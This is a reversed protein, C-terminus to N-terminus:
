PEDEPFWSQVIWREVDQYPTVFKFPPFDRVNKRLVIADDVEWLPIYAIEAYLHAHLTQLRSVASKWDPARDLDLLEIRLWDPVSRMSEMRAGSSVTLFPWIEMLPEEMRLKRYAIDWELPGRRGPSEGSLPKPQVLEVAIGVRKWQAIIETAAAQSQPDHECVLRLPPITQLRKVAVGHRSVAMSANFDRRAVLGNYAYSTTAFPATSLRGGVPEPSRLIRQALIRQVDLAYSLALRLERSKLPQSNPNFQLVHTTPIAYDLVFFRTDKRLAGLAWPPLDLLM